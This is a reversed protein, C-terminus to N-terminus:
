RRAFERIPKTGVFSITQYCTGRHHGVTLGLMSPIKQVTMIASLPRTTIDVQNLLSCHESKLGWSKCVPLPPKSNKLVLLSEKSHRLHVSRKFLNTELFELEM